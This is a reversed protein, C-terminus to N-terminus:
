EIGGGYRKVILKFATMDDFLRVEFPWEGDVANEAEDLANQSAYVFAVPPRLFVYGTQCKVTSSTLVSSVSGMIYYLSLADRDPKKGIGEIITGKSHAESINAISREFSEGAWISRLADSACGKLRLCQTMMPNLAGQFDQEYKPVTLTHVRAFRGTVTEFVSLVRVIDGKVTRRDYDVSMRVSAGFVKKLKLLTIAATVRIAGDGGTVKSVEMFRPCYIKASVRKSAGMLKSMVSATVESLGFVCGFANHAIATLRKFGESAGVHVIGGNLAVTKGIAVAKEATLAAIPSGTFCMVAFPRKEAMKVAFNLPTIVDLPVGDSAKHLAFLAPLSPIVVDNLEGKNIEYLESAKFSSEKVAAFFPVYNEVYVVVCKNGSIMMVTVIDTEELLLVLSKMLEQTKSIPLALDFVVFYVSRRALGDSMRVVADTFDQEPDCIPCAMTGNRLAFQRGTCKKCKPLMKSEISEQPDKDAKTQVFGFLEDSEQPPLVSSNFTIM